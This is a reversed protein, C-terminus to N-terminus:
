KIFSSVTQASWSDFGDPNAEYLLGTCDQANKTLQMISSGLLGGAPSVLAESTLLKECLSLAAERRADDEMCSRTLALGVGPTGVALNM